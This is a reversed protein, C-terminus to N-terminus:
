WRSIAQHFQSFKFSHRQVLQSRAPLDEFARKRGVYGNACFVPTASPDKKPCNENM